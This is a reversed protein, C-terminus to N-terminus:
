HSINLCDNIYIAFLITFVFAQIVAVATELIMLVILLLAPVVHLFFFFLNGLVLLSWAFTAVVKLLTHGAMMNAFLRIPLSIPKFFYSVLEIPVLLFSLVFSTGGPLFLGFMHLGNKRFSIINLGWFLIGSLTFTVILHSTLTFNYPIIGLLNVSLVFIFTSSLIPFFSQAMHGNINERTMNAILKFINELILQLRSPIIYPGSSKYFNFEKYVISMLFFYFLFLVIVTYFINNFFQFYGFIPLVAFQEVPSFNLIFINLM